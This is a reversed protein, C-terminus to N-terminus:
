ADVEERGEGIWSTDNLVKEAVWLLDFNGDILTCRGEVSGQLLADDDAEVLAGRLAEAFELIEGDTFRRGTPKNSSEPPM